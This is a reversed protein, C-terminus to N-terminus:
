GGTADLRDLTEHLVSLPLTFGRAGNTSPGFAFGTPQGRQAGIGAQVYTPSAVSQLVAVRTGARGFVTNHMGSGYEGLVHSARSFLRSKAAVGLREAHVVRYGRARVAAEIEPANGITSGGPSRSRSVYLRRDAAESSAPLLGWAANALPSFVDGYRLFSPVYLDQVVLTTRFKDHRVIRSRDIGAVALMDAAWSPTDADIVIRLRSPVALGLVLRPLIDVLWHGWVQEGGQAIYLCPGEVHRLRGPMRATMEGDRGEERPVLSLRHVPYDLRGLECFELRPLLVVDRGRLFLGKGFIRTEGRLRYVRVPPVTLPERSVPSGSAAGIEFWPDLSALGAPALEVYSVQEGSGALAAHTEVPRALDELKVTGCDAPVFRGPRIRWHLRALRQRLTM